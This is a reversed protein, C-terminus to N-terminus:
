RAYGRKRAGGSFDELTSGGINSPGCKTHVPSEDPAAKKRSALPSVGGANGM